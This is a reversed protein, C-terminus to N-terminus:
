VEDRWPRAVSVSANEDLRVENQCPDYSLLGFAEMELVHDNLLRTRAAALSEDGGGDPRWALIQSTMEDLEAPNELTTLYYLVARRDPDSLVDHM